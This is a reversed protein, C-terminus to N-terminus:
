LSDGSPYFQFEFPTDRLINRTNDCDKLASWLSNVLTLSHSRLLFRSDPTLRDNYYTECDISEDYSEALKKAEHLLENIRLLKTLVPVVHTEHANHAELHKHEERYASDKSWKIDLEGQEQPNLKEYELKEKEQEKHAKEMALTDRYSWVLTQSQKCYTKPSRVKVCRWKGGVSNYPTPGFEVYKTKGELIDSYFVKAEETTCLMKVFITCKDPIENPFITVNQVCNPGYLYNFITEVFSADITDTLSICITLTSMQRINNLFILLFLFFFFEIKKSFFFCLM